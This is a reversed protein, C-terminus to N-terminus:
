DDRRAAAEKIKQALADRQADSLTAHFDLMRDTVEHALEAREALRADVLTHVAKRDVTDDALLKAMKGADKRHAERADEVDDRLDAKLDDLAASQAETLDLSRLLAEVRAARGREEDHHALASGATGLTAGLLTFGLGFALTTFWSRM